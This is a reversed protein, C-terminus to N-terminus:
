ACGVKWGCQDFNKEQLGSLHLFRTNPPMWATFIHRLIDCTVTVRTYEDMWESVGCIKRGRNARVEKGQEQSVPLHFPYPDQDGPTHQNSPLYHVASLLCVPLPARASATPAAWPERVPGAAAPVPQRRHSGTGKDQCNDMWVDWGAHGLALLPVALGRAEPLSLTQPTFCLGCYSPQSQQSSMKGESGGRGRGQRGGERGTGGSPEGETLHKSWLRRGLSQEWPIWVFVCAILSAWSLPHSTESEPFGHGSSRNSKLESSVSM